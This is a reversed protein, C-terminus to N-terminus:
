FCCFWYCRCRQTRTAVSAPPPVSAHSVILIIAKDANIVRKNIIYENMVSENSVRTANRYVM